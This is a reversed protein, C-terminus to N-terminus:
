KVQKRAMELAEHWWRCKRETLLEVALRIIAAARETDSM